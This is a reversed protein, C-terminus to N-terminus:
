RLFLHIVFVIEFHGESLFTIMLCTKVAKIDDSYHQCLGDMGTNPPHVSILRIQFIVSLVCLNRYINVVNCWM